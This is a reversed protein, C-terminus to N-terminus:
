SEETLSAARLAGRVLDPEKLFADHGFPSVAEILRAPGGLRDRLERLQWPPVLVDSSFGLLTVPVRIEEPAVAHSDISASLCSFAAPTFRAAFTRGGHELYEEVAFRPEGTGDFPAADFRQAFEEASRYTTIALGRALALGEAARKTEQGLRVIRRQLTRLATAMPHSQHAAGLVVAQALRAPFRSALALAVMGGYSAGVIAALRNVGLHDLLTVIARAQDGTTVAPFSRDDAGPGTSAGSGGLYDVGLLHFRQPDLVQGHGVVDPWWGSAQDDNTLDRGSSIGGLVVVAPRTRDGYTRFGLVPDALVGGRELLFSAGLAVVGATIQPRVGAATM